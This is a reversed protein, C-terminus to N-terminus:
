GKNRLMLTVMVDEEQPFRGAKAQKLSSRGKAKSQPSPGMVVAVGEMKSGM